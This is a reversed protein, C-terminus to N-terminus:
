IVHGRQSKNSIGGNQRSRDNNYWALRKDKQEIKEIDGRKVGNGKQKSGWFANKFFNITDPTCM